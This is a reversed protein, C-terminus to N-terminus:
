YFFFAVIINVTDWKQVSDVFYHDKPLRGLLGSVHCIFFISDWVVCVCYVHMTRGDSIDVYCVCLMHILLQFGHDYM